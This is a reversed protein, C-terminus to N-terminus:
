LSVTVFFTSLKLGNCSSLCGINLFKILVFRQVLAMAESAQPQNPSLSRTCLRRHVLTQLQFAYNKLEALVCCEGAFVDTRRTAGLKFKMGSPNRTGLLFRTVEIISPMRSSEELSPRVPLVYSTQTIIRNRSRAQQAM